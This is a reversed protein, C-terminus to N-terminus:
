SSLTFHGPGFPPPSALEASTLALVKFLVGMQIPDVLRWAGSAIATAQSSKARQLLRERREGLGLKLLFEGQPVPGYAKLGFTGAHRKLDAFDV